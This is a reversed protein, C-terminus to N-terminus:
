QDVYEEIKATVQLTKAEEKTLEYAPDGMHLSLTTNARWGAENAYKAAFLQALEQANMSITTTRRIM